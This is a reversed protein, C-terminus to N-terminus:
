KEKLAQKGDYNIAESITGSHRPNVRPLLFSLAKGRKDIRRELTSVVEWLKKNKTQLQGIECDDAHVFEEAWKSGYVKEETRRCVSCKRVTGLTETPNVDYICKYKHM